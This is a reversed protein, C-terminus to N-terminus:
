ILLDDSRLSLSAPLVVVVVLMVVIMVIVAVTSNQGTRDEVMRLVRTLRMM